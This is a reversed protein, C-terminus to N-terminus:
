SISLEEKKPTRLISHLKVLYMEFSTLLLDRGLLSEAPTTMNM